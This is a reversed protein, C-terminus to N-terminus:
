LQIHKLKDEVIPVVDDKINTQIIETKCFMSTELCFSNTVKM